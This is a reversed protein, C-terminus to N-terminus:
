QMFILQEKSFEVLFTIDTWANIPSLTYMIGYVNQPITNPKDYNFFYIFM